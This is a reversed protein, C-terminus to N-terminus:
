EKKDEGRMGSRIGAFNPGFKNMMHKGHGFVNNLHEQIMEFPNHFFNPRPRHPALPHM